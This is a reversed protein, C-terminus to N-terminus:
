EARVYYSPAQLLQKANTPATGGIAAAWGPRVKLRERQASAVTVARNEAGAAHSHETPRLCDLQWWSHTRDPEGLLYTAM